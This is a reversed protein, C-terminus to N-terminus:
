KGAYLLLPTLDKVIANIKERVEAIFSAYLGPFHNSTINPEATFFTNKDTFGLRGGIRAALDAQDEYTYM